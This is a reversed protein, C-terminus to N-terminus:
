THVYEQLLRRIDAVTIVGDGDMDIFFLDELTYEKNSSVYEQILLRIDAVTISNSNDLDGKIGPAELVTFTFFSEYSDYYNIGRDIEGSDGSSDVEVEVMDMNSFVIFSEGEHLKGDYKRNWDVWAEGFMEEMESYTKLYVKRGDSYTVELEGGSINFPDGEFYVQKTQSSVLRVKRPSAIVEIEFEVTKEHYELRVTHSGLSYNAWYFWQKAGGKYVDDLYVHVLPNTFEVESTDGSSFSVELVGDDCLYTSTNDAYQIKTPMTKIRISEVEGIVINFSAQKEKYSVVIPITGTMSSNETYGYCSVEEDTMDIIEFADGSIDGSYYVKIKGGTLDVADGANYVLKDPRQEIAIRSVSTANIKEPNTTEIYMPFEYSYKNWYNQNKLTNSSYYTSRETENFMYITEGPESEVIIVFKNGELKIPEKLVLRDSYLGYDEIVGIYIYDNINNGTYNNVLYVRRDYDGGKTPVNIATLYNNNEDVDFPIYFFTKNQINVFKENKYFAEDCNTQYRPNENLLETDLVGMFDFSRPDWYSLYLKGNDGWSEGWSNLVIWTGNEDPTTDKDGKFNNKSYNDDWGIISIAHGGFGPNNYWNIGWSTSGVAIKVSGYQMIHRKVMEITKERAIKWEEEIPEENIPDYSCSFNFTVYKSARAVIDANKIISMDSYDEYPIDEETAYGYVMAHHITDENSFADGEISNNISGVTRTGGIQKSMLYDAHRESFDYDVGKLMMTNTESSKTPAFLNCLGLSGQNEVKIDIIDELTFKSPLDEPKYKYLAEIEENRYNDNTISLISNSALAGESHNLEKSYDVVRAYFEVFSGAALVVRVRINGAKTGDYQIEKITEDNLEITDVTDDEYIVVATADEVTIEEGLGFVKKSPYDKMYAEKIVIDGSAEKITIPVYVVEYQGGYANSYYKDGYQDVYNWELRANQTGVLDYDFYFETDIFTFHETDYEIEETEEDEEGGFLKFKFKLGSFDINRDGLLYTTKTPMQTIEAYWLQKKGENNTGRLPISGKLAIKRKAVEILLSGLRYNSENRFLYFDVNQIGERDRDFEDVSLRSDTFDIEETMSDEYTLKLKLGYLNINEDQYYKNNTIDSIIDIKTIEKKENLLRQEEESHVQNYIANYDEFTFDTGAFAFGSFLILYIFISTILIKKSNM